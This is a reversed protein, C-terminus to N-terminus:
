AVDVESECGACYRTTSDAAGVLPGACSPCRAADILITEVTVDTEGATLRAAHAQVLDSAVQFHDVARTSRTSPNGNGLM